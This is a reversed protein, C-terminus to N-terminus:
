ELLLRLSATVVEAQRMMGLDNPHSSDTTAEDDDGLLHDGALYHLGQVGDARLADFSQRLAKRREGHEFRRQEDFWANAFTRDEVLLIPTDTRAARLQRVLPQTREAVLAPSMNPLCDVVFVAPDLEALFQGVEAEMRGNGSFGFNIVERDLKRHVISPWAMGPRSSCAGQM